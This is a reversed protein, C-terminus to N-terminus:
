WARNWGRVCPPLVVSVCTLKPSKGPKCNCPFLCAWTGTTDELFLVTATELLERDPTVLTVQDIGARRKRAVKALESAEKHEANKVRRAVIDEARQSSRSSTSTGHRKLKRRNRIVVVPESGDSEEGGGDGFADDSDQGQEEEEHQAVVVLEEGSVDSDRDDAQQVARQQEEASDEAGREEPVAERRLAM